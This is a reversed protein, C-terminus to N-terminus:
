YRHFKNVWASYEHSNTIKMTKFCVVPFPKGYAMMYDAKKTVNLVGCGRILKYSECSNEEPIVYNPYIGERNPVYIREPDVPFLIGCCSICYAIAESHKVFEEMCIRPLVVRATVCKDEGRYYDCKWLPTACIKGEENKDFHCLQVYWKKPSPSEIIFRNFIYDFTISEGTAEDKHTIFNLSRYSERMNSISFPGYKEHAEDYERILEDDDGSANNDSGGGNEEVEPDKTAVIIIKDDNDDDDDDDYGRLSSSLTKTDEDGRLPTSLTEITELTKPTKTVSKDNVDVTGNNESDTSTSIDLYIKNNSM